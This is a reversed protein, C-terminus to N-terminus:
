QGNAQGASARLRLFGKSGPMLVQNTIAPGNDTFPQLALDTTTQTQFSITAHDGQKKVMLGGVAMDMIANSSYLNHDGPNAVVLATGVAVGNSYTLDVQGQDYLGYATPNEQVASITNSEVVGLDSKTALGYNNSAAMIRSAVAAVFAENQALAEVFPEVNALMGYDYTIESPPFLFANTAITVRAASTFPLSAKTIGLGYNQYSSLHPAFAGGEISTLAIPGGNGFTVNTLSGCSAFANSRITVVSAPITVRSISIQFFANTGINTIGEPLHLSTIYALHFASNPINVVGSPIVVNGLGGCRMFAGEGISTLGTSLKLTEAGSDYFAWTGVSRVTDPMIFTTLDECGEFARSWIEETGVPLAASVLSSCGQFAYGGVIKLTSPLNVNTLNVAYSFGGVNTVGEPITIQLVSTNTAINIQGWINAYDSPSRTQCINYTGIVAPISIHGDDGGTGIYGEIAACGAPVNNTSYVWEGNTFKQAHVSLPAVLAFVLCALPSRMGRVMVM